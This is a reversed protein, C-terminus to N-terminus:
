GRGLARAILVGLGVWAVRALWQGALIIRNGTIEQPTM